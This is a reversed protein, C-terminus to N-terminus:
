VIGMLYTMILNAEAFYPFMLAALATCVAVVVLGWGYAAWSSTREILRPAVPQAADPDGTIM